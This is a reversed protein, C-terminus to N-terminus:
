QNGENSEGIGHVKEALRVGAVFSEWDASIQYARWIEEMMMPERAPESKTNQEPTMAAVDANFKDAFEKCRANFEAKTLLINSMKPAENMTRGGANSM